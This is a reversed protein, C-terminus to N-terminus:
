DQEAEPLDAPDLAVDPLALPAVSQGAEVEFVEAYGDPDPRRHVRIRRRVLMAVWYEPIGAAAYAAAKEGLDKALSSVSVEVVLRVDAPRPHEEAYSRDTVVAVDPEPEDLESVAIPHGERVQLGVEAAPPRLFQAVLHVGQAHPSREPSMEVMRGGLLEVREDDLLGADILVHYQARTLPRTLVETSTM